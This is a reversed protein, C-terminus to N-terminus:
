VNVVEEAKHRARIKEIAFGLAREAIIKPDQACPRKDAHNHIIFMSLVSLAYSMSCRREWFDADAGCTAVLFASLDGLTMPRGSPDPPTEPKIEQTDVQRVAEVFESTTARLGRFWRKVAKEAEDGYADLEPGDSRGFVMAYGMAPTIQTIDFKNEQMWEVARMTLPWLFHGSLMVPRGRSLSLRTKPNHVEWALANLEVIEEPTLRIGDAELAEIEASALSNLKVTDDM